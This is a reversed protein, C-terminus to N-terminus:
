NRNKTSHWSDIKNRPITEYIKGYKTQLYHLGNKDAKRIGEM